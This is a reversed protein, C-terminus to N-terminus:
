KLRFRRKRKFIYQHIKKLLRDDPTEERFRNQTTLFQDIIHRQNV